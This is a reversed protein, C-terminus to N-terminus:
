LVTVLNSKTGGLTMGNYGSFGFIYNRADAEAVVTGTNGDLGYFRNCIAGLHVGSGPCLALLIGGGSQVISTGLFDNNDASELRIGNLQGSFDIDTRVFSNEAVDVNTGTGTLLLGGGCAKTGLQQFVNRYVGAASGRLEIGYGPANTVTIQQYLAGVSAEILLSGGDINFNGIAGGNIGYLHLAPQDAPGVYKFRTSADGAVQLPVQNGYGVMSFTGQGDHRSVVLPGTVYTGPPVELMGGAAEAADIAAQLAATDNVIGNGVAGFDKVNM